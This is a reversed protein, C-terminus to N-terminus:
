QAKTLLYAQKNGRAVFDTFHVKGGEGKPWIKRLSPDIVVRNREKSCKSADFVPQGFATVRSEAAPGIATVMVKGLALGVGIDIGPIGYRSALEPNVIEKTLTLADDARNYVNMLSRSSAGEATEFFAIVGDGTYEAIRGGSLGFLVGCAPLLASTEYYVREVGSMTGFRSWLHETSDRIDVVVAIYTKVAARDIEIYQVGPYPTRLPRAKEAAAKEMIRRIPAYRYEAEDLLDSVASTLQKREDSTM